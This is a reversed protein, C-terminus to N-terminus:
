FGREDPERPTMGPELRSVQMKRGESWVRYMPKSKWVYSVKVDDIEDLEYADVSEAIEDAITEAKQKAEGESDAMITVVMEGEFSICARYERPRDDVSFDAPNPKETADM